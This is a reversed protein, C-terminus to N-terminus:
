HEHLYLLDLRWNNKGGLAKTKAEKMTNGSFFNVNFTHVESTDIVFADGKLTAMAVYDDM